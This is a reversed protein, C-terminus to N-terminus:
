PNQPQVLTGVPAPTTRHLCQSVSPHVASGFQALVSEAPMPVRLIECQHTESDYVACAALDGQDRPLGCSGVNAILRDDIRAVFPRHTNGMFVADYGLEALWHLESDPYVYDRLPDRPSGHVLLIRREGATFERRMPWNAVQTLADAPLRRRTEALQYVEDSVPDLELDGLLMAEHNGRQCLVDSEALIRLTEAAGPLYGVADGLFYTRDIRSDALAALALRLGLPNGHADSLLGIRV